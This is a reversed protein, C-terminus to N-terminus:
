GWILVIIIYIFVLLLLSLVWWNINDWPKTTYQIGKDSASLKPVYPKINYTNCYPCCTTDVPKGGFQEGGKHTEFWKQKNKLEIKKSGDWTTHTRYLTNHCINCKLQYYKTKRFYGKSFCKKCTMFIEDEPIKGRPIHKANCAPCHFIILLKSDPLRNLDDQFLIIFLMCFLFAGVLLDM